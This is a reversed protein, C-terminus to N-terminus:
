VRKPDFWVLVEKGGSRMSSGCGLIIELIKKPIYIVGAIAYRILAWMCEGWCGFISKMVKLSAEGFTRMWDWLKRPADFITAHLCTMFANTVDRLTIRQFFGLVAACATHIFSFLRQIANTVALGGRKLGTWLWIFAIKLGRPLRKISRWTLKVCYRLVRWICRPIEKIAKWAQAPFKKMGNAADKAARAMMKPIEKRYEYLWKMGKIFPLVVAHKPITWLFFRPVEWFFFKGFYYISNAAKKCRRMAKAHKTKWRGFGGGRRSPLYDVVERHGNSAALRLALEGDPAILADDAGREILLKVIPLHGTQAAFQIPTRYTHQENKKGFRAPGLTTTAIIGYANMDAGVDLLYRAMHTHGAEIAALLPTRGQKDTTQITTLGAGSFAAVLEVNGNEIADFYTKVIRGYRLLQQHEDHKCNTDLRPYALVPLNFDDENRITTALETISAWINPQEESYLPLQDTHSQASILRSAPPEVTAHQPEGRKNVAGTATAINQAGDQDAM